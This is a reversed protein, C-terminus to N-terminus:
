ALAVVDELKVKPIVDLGTNPTANLIERGDKKFAKLALEFSRETALMDCHTSHGSPIYTPDFHNKDDGEVVIRRGGYVAESRPFGFQHDTGLLIVRKYGIFYALQLCIFIVTGGLYVVRDARSSFRLPVPFNFIPQRPGQVNGYVNWNCNLIHEDSSGTHLDHLNDGIFKVTGELERIADIHNKYFDVSITVYYDPVHKLFIGNTGFTRYRELIQNDVDALSPGNGLIFCTEGVATNKLKLISSNSPGLIESRIGRYLSRIFNRTHM